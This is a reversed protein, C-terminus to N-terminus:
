NNGGGQRQPRLSPEIKEKWEKFQEDTFIKKLKEDRGANIKQMEARMAERDPSGSARMEERKADQAKFANTFISDAEAKKADDLKFSELKELVTKVREAVPPRQFGGQAGAFLVSCLLVGTLILFRTKM